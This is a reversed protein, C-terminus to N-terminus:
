QLVWYDPQTNYHPRLCGAIHGTSEDGHAIVNRGLDAQFHALFTPFAGTQFGEITVSGGTANYVFDDDDFLIGDGATDFGVQMCITTDEVISCDFEDLSTLDQSGAGIDSADAIDLVLPEDQTLEEIQRAFDSDSSPDYLRIIFPDTPPEEDSDPDPMETGPPSAVGIEIRIEQAMIRGPTEGPTIIKFSTEEEPSSISGEAYAKLEEDDCGTIPDIIIEEEESCGSIMMWVCAFLLVSVIRNM